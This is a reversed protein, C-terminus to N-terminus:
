DIAFPRDYVPALRYLALEYKSLTHCIIAFDVFDVYM